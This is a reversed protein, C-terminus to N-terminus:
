REGTKVKVKLCKIMYKSELGKLNSRKKKKKDEWGVEREYRNNGFHLIKGRERERNKKRKKRLIEYIHINM